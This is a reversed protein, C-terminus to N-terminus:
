WNHDLLIEDYRQRFEALDLPQNAIDCAVDFPEAHYLIETSMDNPPSEIRQRLEMAREHADPRQSGHFQVLCQEVVMWFDNKAM